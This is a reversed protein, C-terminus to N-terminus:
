VDDHGLLRSTFDPNVFWHNARRALRRTTPRRGTVARGRGDVVVGFGVSAPPRLPLRMRWASRWDIGQDSGNVAASANPRQRTRGEGEQSERTPEATTAMVEIDRAPTDIDPRHMDAVVVEMGHLYIGNAM